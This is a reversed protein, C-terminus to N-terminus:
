TVFGDIHVQFHDNYEERAINGKTSQNTMYYLWNTASFTQKLNPLIVIRVIYIYIRPHNFSYVVYEGM